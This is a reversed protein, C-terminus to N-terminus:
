LLLGALGLCKDLERDDIEKDLSSLQGVEPRERGSVLANERGPIELGVERRANNNRWNAAAGGRTTSDWFICVASAGGLKNNGPQIWARDICLVISIKM